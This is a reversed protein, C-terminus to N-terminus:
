RAIFPKYVLDDAGASFIRHIADAGPQTAFFLIPLGGWHPDSRVVDCLPISVGNTLDADLILVDPQCEELAELLTNPATLIQLAFRPSALAARVTAQVEPDDVVALVRAEAAQEHLIFQRVMHFLPFPLLPKLLFSQGGLQTAELRNALTDEEAIVFIPVPATRDELAVLL